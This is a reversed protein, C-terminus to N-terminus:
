FQHPDVVELEPINKFDSTNRSILVLGLALATAALIADPLKIKLQKRLEITQDVISDSLALVDADLMFNTLLLYDAPPANFGLVEIKTIVSVKPIANVVDNMFAMGSLPLKGSLYDILANSDILYQTGM